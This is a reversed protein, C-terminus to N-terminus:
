YTQHPTSAPRPQGPTIEELLAITVDGIQIKQDAFDLIAKRERLFPIGLICDYRDINAVDFYMESTKSGIDIHCNGGHTVKSRSGICGLQLTIQQDLPFVKMGTVKAFAPSIFNGTSGTDLMIYAKCGNIQTQITACRRMEPLLRPRSGEILTKMADKSHMAYRFTRTGDPNEKEGKTKIAALQIDPQNDPNRHNITMKGHPTTVVVDDHYVVIDDKPLSTLLTNDIGM